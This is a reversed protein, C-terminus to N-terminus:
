ELMFLLELSRGLSSFKNALSSTLTYCLYIALLSAPGPLWPLLRLSCRGDICWSDALLSTPSHYRHWAYLQRAAGDHLVSLCVLACASPKCALSFSYKLLLFLLYGRRCDARYWAAARCRAAMSRPLCRVGCWSDTLSSALGHSSRWACLWHAAGNHLM